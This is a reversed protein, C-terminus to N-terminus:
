RWGEVPKVSIRTRSRWSRINWIEGMTVLEDAERKAGSLGPLGRNLRVLCVRGGSCTGESDCRQHDSILRAPPTANCPYSDVYYSKGGQTM